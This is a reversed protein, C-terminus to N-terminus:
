ILKWLLLSVLLLALAWLWQARRSMLKQPNRPAHEKSSDSLSGIESTGNM